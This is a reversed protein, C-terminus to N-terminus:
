TAQLLLRKDDINEMIMMTTMLDISNSQISIKYFL